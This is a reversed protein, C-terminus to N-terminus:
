SHQRRATTCTSARPPRRHDTYKATGSIQQRAENLTPRRNRGVAHVFTGSIWGVNCNRDWNKAFEMAETLTDFLHAEKCDWDCVYRGWPKYPPREVTVHHKTM